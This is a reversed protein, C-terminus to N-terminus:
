RPRGRISLAEYAQGRARYVDAPPKTGFHQAAELVHNWQEAARRASPMVKDWAGAEYFHHALDNLKPDLNQAHIQALATGIEDHLAARERALLRTYIAQRTLAHRFAFADAREEIVLQASIMAKIHHTLTTEDYGTIAQLVAFDWRQGAVVAISLLRQADPLLQDTRQRVAAQM